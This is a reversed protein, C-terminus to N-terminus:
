ACARCRMRRDRLRLQSSRQIVRCARFIYIDSRLLQRSLSPVFCIEKTFPQLRSDSSVTPVPQLIPGFPNLLTRVRYESCRTLRTRNRKRGGRGWRERAEKRDKESRIEGRPRKIRRPASLSVNAEARCVQAFSRHRFEDMSRFM